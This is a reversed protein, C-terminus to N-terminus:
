PVRLRGDIVPVVGGGVEIEELAGGREVGRIHLRCLRGM